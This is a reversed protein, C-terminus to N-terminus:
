IKRYLGIWCWKLLPVFQILKLSSLTCASALNVCAWRTRACWHLYLMPLSPSMSSMCVLITVSSNESMTAVSRLVDMEVVYNRQPGQCLRTLAGHQPLRLANGVLLQPALPIFSDPRFNMWLHMSSFKKRFSSLPRCAFQEIYLWYFASSFHDSSSVYSSNRIFSTSHHHSLQINLTQNLWSTSHNVLM